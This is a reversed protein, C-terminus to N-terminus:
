MIQDWQGIDHNPDEPDAGGPQNGPDPSPSTGSTTLVDFEALEIIQIIPNEYLENKM